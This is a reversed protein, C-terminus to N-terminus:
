KGGAFLVDIPYIKDFYYLNDDIKIIPKKGSIERDYLIPYVGKPLKYKDASLFLVENNPLSLAYAGQEIITLGFLADKNFGDICQKIDNTVVAYSYFHQKNQIKALMECFGIQEVPNMERLTGFEHTSKEVYALHKKGNYKLWEIYPLNALITEPQNRSSGSGHLFGDVHVIRKKQLENWLNRIEDLSRKRLNGQVNRLSLSCKEREIAEVTLEAGPRISHLHLGILKEIDKLLDNYTM